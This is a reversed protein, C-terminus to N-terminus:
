WRQIERLLAANEPRDRRKNLEALILKARQKAEKPRMAHIHYKRERNGSFRVLLMYYDM